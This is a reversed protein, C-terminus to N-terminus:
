LEGFMAPDNEEEWSKKIRAFVDEATLYGLVEDSKEEDETLLGM